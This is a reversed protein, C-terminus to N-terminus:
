PLGVGMWCIAAMEEGSARVSSIEGQSLVATFDMSFAMWFESRPMLGWFSPPEMRRLKGWSVSSRRLSSTLCIRLYASPPLTAMRLMRRSAM